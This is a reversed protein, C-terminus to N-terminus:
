QAFIDGYQRLWDRLQQLKAQREERVERDYVARYRRGHPVKTAQGNRRWTRLDFTTYTCPQGAEAGCLPCREQYALDARRM